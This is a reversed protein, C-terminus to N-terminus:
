ACLTESSDGDFIAEEDTLQCAQAWGRTRLRESRRFNKAGWVAQVFREFTFPKLLYDAAKLDFAKLAYEQYATTFIVQAKVASTKLFQIGSM